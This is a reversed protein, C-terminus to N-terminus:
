TWQGTGIARADPLLRERLEVRRIKWTGTRPFQDWRITIPHALAPLDHTAQRWGAEDVPSDDVTSIVPVPLGDAVPLVVVETTTPLRDLLLDELEIASAGHIRDIERDLLRVAGFRNIVGLDGTNWWIGDRKRDHRHQEGVYALCRGPQAIEILGPRGHPVERGTAPDVARIRALTPVPWGLLQTPPPRHGRRRVNHRLYPRLVLAGNESQSWVQVWIPMRHDTANLFTRITRTHIADFSNIYERVRSFPRRPDRALHEWALFINPLAEVVTPRHEAIVNPVVPSLPDSIMVMRTGITAWALMGTTVREHWFPDAFAFVDDRRLRILPWREAEVLTLAHASTASHMVLKPTGTTGSTHTISMPEDPRRPRPPVPPAGKLDDLPVLDPRDFQPDVCLTRATLQAVCDKDLGCKDIHASDTLLFPRELRALLTHATDPGYSGSLLAPIAGIRAAACGLLAVDFHNAKLVAVRDWARVGAHHLWGAAHDVLEAWQVSTRSLPGDRDIDSARDVTIIQQPHLNAATHWADGINAVAPTRSFPTLRRRPRTAAYDTLFSPRNDM